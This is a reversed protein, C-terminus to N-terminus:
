PTAGKPTFSAILDLLPAIADNAIKLANASQTVDQAVTLALLAAKQYKAYAALVQTRQDETRQGAQYQTNFVGMTAKAAADVDSLTTYAKRAPTATTACGYFCAAMSLVVLLAVVFSPRTEDRYGFGNKM